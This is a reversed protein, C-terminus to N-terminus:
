ADVGRLSGFDQEVFWAYTSRIVDALDTSHSWGLDHIKSVDLLRRPAGDPKSADWVLHAGPHVVDRINEALERISIDVGTGVNVHGASDYNNM